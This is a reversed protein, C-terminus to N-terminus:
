KHFRYKKTENSRKQPMVDINKPVEKNNEIQQLGLRRQRQFPAEYQVGRPSKITDATIKIEGLSELVDRRSEQGSTGDQDIEGSPTSLKSGDFQDQNTMDNQYETKNNSRTELLKEGEKRLSDLWDVAQKTHSISTGLAEM